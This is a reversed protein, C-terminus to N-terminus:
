NHSAMMKRRLGSLKQYFVWFLSYIVPPNLFAFLRFFLPRPSLFFLNKFRDIGANIRPQGNFINVTLINKKIYSLKDGGPKVKKLFNSSIPTKFYKQAMAFGTYVFNELRFRRIKQALKSESSLRRNNYFALRMAEDLFHLRFIQRFNHHFFHGALYIILNDFSLIPFSEGRVKILKKEKLFMQTLQDILRQPYLAELKGLQTMMIVVEFHVDFVVPLQKLIKVFSVEIQKNKLVKHLPSLAITGKRYGFNKLIKKAREGDKKAVLVDCDLYVRRPHSKEFYLHLPLGKLFVFNIKNREFVRKIKVIEQFYLTSQLLYITEPSFTTGERRVKYVKGLIQRPYIKGDSLHNNDGKTVLYSPTIYIVRHTFIKKNKKVVIINNLKIQSFSVKKFFVVDGEQLLPEMSQGFTKLRSINAIAIEM